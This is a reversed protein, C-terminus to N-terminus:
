GKIKMNKFVQEAGLMEEREPLTEPLTNKMDLSKYKSGAYNHYPLVRVASLNKLKRLMEAIKGIQCSNYKPVYPIRVEINKGLSDIYFLNELIKKNPQGTCKIHLM